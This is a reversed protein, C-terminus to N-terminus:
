LAIATDSRCDFIDDSQHVMDDHVYNRMSKPAADREIAQAAPLKTGPNQDAHRRIEEGESNKMDHVRVPECPSQSPFNGPRRRQRYKRGINEVGIVYGM